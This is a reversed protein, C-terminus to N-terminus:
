KSTSFFRGEAYKKFQKLDEEVRKGPNDLLHAAIKGAEGAPPTYQMQVTVQVEDNDLQNFTVQGSTTIDGSISNWAIRKNRQIDTTEAEWELDKGLPGKMIWHSRNEGKKSISKIDKMFYPFNEFNEWLSYVESIDGKVILSKMVKESM